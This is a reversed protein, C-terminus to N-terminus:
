PTKYGAEKLLQKAKEPSYEYPKLDKNYGFGSPLFATSLRHGRDKYVSGLLEDWNIAYNLAQRVKPDTIVKNNLEIMYARTGDTKMITIKSDKELEATIDAPVDEIIQVEGAKLATVRTSPEPLMRFIAKKLKAPGVPQQEPSGGYYGDFRELVVESDLKASVMKFPGSGIPKQAFTEDGVSKIYNKPVIQTHVLLQLFQPSPSKMTFRVTDPGTKEVKEMPGLLGLRPSQKGMVGTPSLIREFTFIVDDVTLSDGNQFKIGKRIKFDYITPQPNSWSEAIEPVVKGDPTRTVLGDFINRIVTETERDRYNAPDLTLIHDINLGVVLMDGGDSRSVDHLNIRNDMFPTYGQVSKAVGQVIDLTYGFIWPSDDFLVKQAELYAAGREENNAGSSGKMVLEDYKPSSYFSFNGRDGTKLKPMALDFPDFIASGWDMAYAQRSGKKVEAELANKEWVRVQADIGVQQLYLSVAQLEAQRTSPGDLTIQLVKGADSKKGGGCGAAVAAVLLLLLFVTVSLGLRKKM